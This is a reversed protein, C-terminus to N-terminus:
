VANDRIVPSEQMAPNKVNGNPRMSPRQSKAQDTAILRFRFAREELSLSPRNDDSALVTPRGFHTAISWRKIADIPAPGPDM